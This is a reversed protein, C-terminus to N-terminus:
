DVDSSTTATMVILLDKLLNGQRSSQGHGQAGDADSSALVLPESSSSSCLKKMAVVRTVNRELRDRSERLLTCVIERDCDGVLGEDSGGGVRSGGNPGDVSVSFSSSNATTPAPGPTPYLFSRFLEGLLDLAAQAQERTEIFDEPRILAEFAAKRSSSLSLSSSSPSSPISSSSSLSSSSSSSLSSSASVHEAATEGPLLRLLRCVARWQVGRSATKLQEREKASKSAEHRRLLLLVDPLNAISQPYRSYYFLITFNFSSIHLYFYIFIFLCVFLCM